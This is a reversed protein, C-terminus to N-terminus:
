ETECIKLINKGAIWAPVTQKAPRRELPASVEPIQAALGKFFM